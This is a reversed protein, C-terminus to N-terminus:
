LELEKETYFEEGDAIGDQSESYDNKNTTFAEADVNVTNIEETLEDITKVISKEDMLEDAIYAEIKKSNKFIALYRNGISRHGESIKCYNSQIQFGTLVTGAAALILSVIRLENIGTTITLFILVGIIANIILITINTFNYYGQKRDAANFHKKKGYAADTKIKKLYHITNELTM